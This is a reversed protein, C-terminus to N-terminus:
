GLGFPYARGVSGGARRWQTTEARFHRLSFGYVSLVRALFAPDRWKHSALIDPREILERISPLVTPAPAFPTTAEAM